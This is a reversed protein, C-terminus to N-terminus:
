KYKTLLMLLTLSYLKIDLEKVAREFAKKKVYDYKEYNNIVELLKSALSMPDNPRVLIAADGVISPIGGVYSAVLLSGTALAELAVNPSRESSAYGLLRSPLVVIESARYLLPMDEFKLLNYFRIIGYSILKAIKRKYQDRIEKKDSLFRTKPLLFVVNERIKLKEWLIEIADILVDAGKCYSLEGIFTCWRKEVLDNQLGLIKILKQKAQKRPILHSAKFREINVGHPHVMIPKGRKVRLVELVYRKSAYSEAILVPSNKYVQSVFWRKICQLIRLLASNVRTIYNEEVVVVVRTKLMRSLFYILLGPLSEIGFIIVAHPRYLLFRAVDLVSVIKDGNINFCKWRVAYKLLEEFPYNGYIGCTFLRVEVRNKMFTLMDVHFPYLFPTYIAVRFTKNVM